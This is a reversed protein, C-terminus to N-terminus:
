YIRNNISFVDWTKPKNRLVLSHNSVTLKSLFMYCKNVCAFWCLWTAAFVDKEHEYTPNVTFHKYTVTVRKTLMM